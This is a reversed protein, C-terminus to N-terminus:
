ENIENIQEQKNTQKEKQAVNESVPWTSCALERLQLLEGAETEQPNLNCAPTMM